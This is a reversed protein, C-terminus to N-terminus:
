CWRPRPCCRAECAPPSRSAPRTTSSARARICTSTSADLREGARVVDYSRVEQHWSPDATPVYRIDFLRGTTDLLGALVREFDLHGRVAQSDVAFREEHLRTLLYAQDATTVEAADPIDQRMRELLIAYEADSAARSAEDVEDLFTEVRAASGAMRNETEYDAWSAYGLLEARQRRVELLEALVPDNAPWALDARAARLAIRTDRDHAYNLVATVDIADTSLAVLGDDGVPHQQVFDEPLGALSEPKVRIERRGD